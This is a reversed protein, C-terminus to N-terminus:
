AVQRVADGAAAAPRAIRPLVRFRLSVGSEDPLEDHLQQALAALRRRLSFDGDAALVVQGGRARVMIALLERLLQERFAIAEPRAQRNCVLTAVLPPAGAEWTEIRAVARDRFTSLAEGPRQFVIALSEADETPADLWRPRRAASELIVISDPSM